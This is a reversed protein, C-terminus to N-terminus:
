DPASTSPSHGSPPNESPALAGPSPAALGPVRTLQIHVRTGLGPESDITLTAGQARALATAITLGLGLGRVSAHTTGKRRFVEEPDSAEMGPGNDIISITADTPTENVTVTIRTGPGCHNISNHVLNLLMQRLLAEDACVEVPQSCVWDLVQSREEALPVLSPVTQELLDALNVPTLHASLRGTDARALTLLGDIVKQMHHGEELMSAVADRLESISSDHTLALEGVSRQATLPTRLEHAAETAFRGQRQLAEQVRGLLGNVVESLESIEDSPHTVPLRDSLSSPGIMRTRRIIQSIPELAAGAIWFGGLSAIVLVVLVGLGSAALVNRMMQKLPALPLVARILLTQSGLMARGQAMRWNGDASDFPTGDIQRLDPPPLNPESLGGRIRQRLHLQQTQSHIQWSEIYAQQPDLGAFWDVGTSIPASGSQLLHRDVTASLDLKLRTDLETRVQHQVFWVMIVAYALLMPVISVLYWTALRARIRLPPLQSV